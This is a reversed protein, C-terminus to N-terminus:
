FVKLSKQARRQLLDSIIGKNRLTSNPHLYSKPKVIGSYLEIFEKTFQISFTCTEYKQEFNDQLFFIFFTLKLKLGSTSLSQNAM